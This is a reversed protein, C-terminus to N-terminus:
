NVQPEGDAVSLCPKCGTVVEDPILPRIHVAVVVPIEAQDESQQAGDPAAPVIARDAM